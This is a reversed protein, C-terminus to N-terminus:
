NSQVAMPGVFIFFGRLIGFLEGRKLNDRCYRRWLSLILRGRRPSFGAVLLAQLQGSPCSSREAIWHCSLPELSLLALLQRQAPLLAALLVPDLAEAQMERCSKNDRLVSRPVPLALPPPPSASFAQDSSM